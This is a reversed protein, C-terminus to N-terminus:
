KEFATEAAYNDNFRLKVLQECDPKLRTKCYDVIQRQKASFGDTDDTSIPDYHDDTDPADVPYDGDTNDETEDAIIEVDATPQHGLILTYVGRQRKVFGVFYTTLTADLFFATPWARQANYKRVFSEAVDNVLDQVAQERNVIVVERGDLQRQIWYSVKALADVIFTADEQNKFLYVYLAIQEPLYRLVLAPDLVVRRGVLRFLSVDNKQAYAIVARLTRRAIAPYDVTASLLGLHRRIRTPPETATVPKAMLQMMEAEIGPLWQESLAAAETIPLGPLRKKWRCSEALEAIFPKYNRAMFAGM